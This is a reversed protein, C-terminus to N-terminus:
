KTGRGILPEVQALWFKIEDNKNNLREEITLSFYSSGQVLHKQRHARVVRPLLEGREKLYYVDSHELAESGFRKQLDEWSLLNYEYQSILYEAYVGRANMRYGRSAKKDLARAVLQNGFAFQDELLSFKYGAISLELVWTYKDFDDGRFDPWYKPINEKQGLVFPEFRMEGEKLPYSSSKQKGDTKLWATLDPKPYSFKPHSIQARDKMDIIDKKTEPLKVVTNNMNDFAPLVYLTKSQLSNRFQDGSWILNRLENHCNRSPHFGVDLSLFYETEVNELALNRLLNHPYDWSGDELLLHLSADKLAARNAEIFDFLPLFDESRKIYVAISAPGDWQQIQNLLDPLSAIASYTVLTIDDKEVHTKRTVLNNIMKSHGGPVGPYFEAAYLDLWPLHKFSYQKVEKGGMKEFKRNVKNVWGQLSTNDELLREEIPLSFYEKKFPKDDILHKKHYALSVEKCLRGVQTEEEANVGRLWAGSTLATMQQFTAGYAEKLYVSFGFM